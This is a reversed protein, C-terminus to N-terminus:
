LAALALAEKVLAVARDIEDATTYRGFSFRISSWAEESSLGIATLVHSAEPIGSACASGTSAALHPQLRMLLDKASHRAFRISCNGIHRENLPPGNLATGPLTLVGEAFRDRLAQIRNREADSTEGVTLDTADAFARCLALPVTGSRLGLQQGGGYLRPTICDQWDRRLFLAGIGQPGYIKHASLSAAGVGLAGVDLRRDILSQAADTHVFAGVSDALSVIEDLHQRTGIESNVLGVSVMLVSDDIADELAELRLRGGEDVPLLQVTCGHMRAAYAAGLVSKHEIASVLIRRRQGRKHEAAGLIALNNAETAGSTFIIEDPDAGINRAIKSRALDLKEAADWGLAHDEAHPNAIQEGFYKAINLAIAKEVPTSAQYDAYITSPLGATPRIM